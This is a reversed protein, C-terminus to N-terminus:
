SAKLQGIRSNKSAAAHHRATSESRYAPPSLEFRRMTPRSVSTQKTDSLIVDSQEPAAVRHGAQEILGTLSARQKEDAVLVGVLLSIGDLM